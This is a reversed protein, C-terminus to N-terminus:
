REDLFLIGQRNIHRSLKSQIEALLEQRIRFIGKVNEKTLDTTIFYRFDLVMLYEKDNYNIRIPLIYVAESKDDVFDIFELPILLGNVIRDYIKNEKQVYDCVPTVITAIQVWSKKINEKIRIFDKSVLKKLEVDDINKHMEKLINRLKLLSLIRHLLKGFLNNNEVFLIVNGSESINNPNVERSLNLKENIISINYEIKSKEYTLVQSNPIETNYIQNELTDKFVSNFAIFSARIRDEPLNNEYHKGLYASGLKELLYNANNTWDNFTSYSSFIEQLTLDAARHVQNEWNILYSYAPHNGILINVKEFLTNVNEDIDETPNGDLNFFDSKMASLYAIPKRDKLENGFIEEEVLSKHREHRSWYIIVYPYNDESIISSLVPILKSKLEKNPRETNDILNIDLFLVRIDNKNEGISPLFNYDGSFYTFPLQKKSLVKMLPEIQSPQDDVIAIRGNLPINM